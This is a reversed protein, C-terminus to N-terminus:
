LDLDSPDIGHERLRRILAIRCNRYRNGVDANRDAPEGLLLTIEQNTFEYLLRWVLLERCQRNETSLIIARVREAFVAAVPDPTGTPVEPLDEVQVERNGKKLIDRAKNNAVTRFWGLFPRGDDEYLRLRRFGDAVLSLLVECALDHRRNEEFYRFAGPPSVMLHRYGIDMFVHLARDPDRDIEGLISPSSQGWDDLSGSDAM